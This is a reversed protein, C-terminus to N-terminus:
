RAKCGALQQMIRNEEEGDLFKFTSIDQRPVLFPFRTETLYCFLAAEPATEPVKGWWLGVLARRPAKVLKQAGERGCGPNQAGVQRVLQEM